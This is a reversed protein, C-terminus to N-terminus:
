AISKLAAEVSDGLREVIIDIDQKQCIFPPALLVHDGHKGDITGGMPYVMLGRAMAEKKIRAHLKLSPDFVSKDARDKV